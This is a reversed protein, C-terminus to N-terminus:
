LQRSLLYLIVFVVAMFGIIWIASRLAHRLIPGMREHRTAAYVMSVSVILPLTYWLRGAAAWVLWSTM